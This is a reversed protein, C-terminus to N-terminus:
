SDIVYSKFIGLRIRHCKSELCFLGSIEIITDEALYHCVVFFRTRVNMEIDFMDHGIKLGRDLARTPLREHSTLWDTTPVVKNFRPVPPEILATSGVM